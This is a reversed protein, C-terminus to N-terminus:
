VEEFRKDVFNSAVFTLYADLISIDRNHTKHNGKSNSYCYATKGM